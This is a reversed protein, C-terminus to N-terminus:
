ISTFVLKISIRSNRWRGLESDGSVWVCFSCSIIYCLLFYLNRVKKALVEGDPSKQLQQIEVQSAGNIVELPPVIMTTMASESGVSTITTSTTICSNLSSNSLVGGGGGGGVGSHRIATHSKNVQLPLPQASTASRLTRAHKRM